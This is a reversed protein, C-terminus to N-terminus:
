EPGRLLWSRASSPVEDAPLSAGEGRDENEEVPTGQHMSVGPLERTGGWFM